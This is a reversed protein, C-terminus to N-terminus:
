STVTSSHQNCWRRWVDRYIGELNRTFRLQDLLPSIRLHERLGARINALLPLNNALLTATKIYSEMTAAAFDPLQAASLVSLGARTLFREGVLTLVPIGLWLSECTTTAGNIPFPDLTLDVQQLM